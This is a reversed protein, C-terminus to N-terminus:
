CKKFAILKQIEAADPLDETLLAASHLAKVKTEEYIHSINNSRIGGGAMICIKNAAQQVLNKLEALFDMANGEGGSTLLNQFDLNILQEVAESKNPIEDFARHFTCPLPSALRLLRENEKINLTKDEKLIGFVLGDIGIKKCFLVANEMEKLEQESYIFNGERPRIMIFLPIHILKRAAQLMEYPPTIGGVSKDVCLEIRNAGAAQAIEAAELSFCAIEILPNAM